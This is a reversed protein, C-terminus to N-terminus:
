KTQQYISKWSAGDDEKSGSLSLLIDKAPFYPRIHVDLHIVDKAVPDQEFRRITFNEILKDPGTISDLFKVIVSNVDKRVNANFGEFGRRNLLDMLVKSIYDLLRIIAYTQFILSEGNFLTKASFAMVKGYEKVMPILGARELMAIESKRLDFRVGDAGSIGGFKKGATVQSLMVSYMKGALAAAPSVFLDDDEEFNAHRSRGLIWNCAMVANSLFPEGGTILAREFEEAVDDPADLDYFDTILLVKNEHCIKAWRHVINSSRLYGPILLLSYSNRLDLRDYCNTLETQVAKIFVPEDMDALQQLTANLITLNKVASTSTNNYFLALARYSKELNAIAALVIKFNQTLIVDAQDSQRRAFKAMSEVDQFNTLIEIWKRLTARLLIREETKITDEFFIKRRAKRAPNVNQIGEIVAELFDFDELDGAEIKRADRDNAGGHPFNDAASVAPQARLPQDSFKGNAELDALIWRVTADLKKKSQPNSLLSRFRLNGKISNFIDNYLSKATTLEKLIFSQATIGPLTFDKMSSFRIEQTVEFSDVNKIKITLVPKFHEFVREISFMGEVMEPKSPLHETLQLAVLTRNSPINSVADEKEFSEIGGGIQYKDLTM